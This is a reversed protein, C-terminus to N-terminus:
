GASTNRAVQVRARLRDFYASDMEDSFAVSASALVRERLQVVGFNAGDSPEDRLSM